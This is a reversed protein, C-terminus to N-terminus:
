TEFILTIIAIFVGKGGTIARFGWM